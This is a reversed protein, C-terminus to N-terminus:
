NKSLIGCPSVLILTSSLKLLYKTGVYYKSISQPVSFLMMYPSVFLNVRVGTKDVGTSAPFGVRTLLSTISDHLLSCLHARPGNYVWALVVEGGSSWRGPGRVVM